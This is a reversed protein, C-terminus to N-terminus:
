NQCMFSCIVHSRSARYPMDHWEQLQAFLRFPITVTLRLNWETEKDTQKVSINDLICRIQKQYWYLTSEIKISNMSDIQM